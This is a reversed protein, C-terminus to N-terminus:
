IINNKDLDSRNTGSNGGKMSSTHSNTSERASDGFYTAVRISCSGSAGARLQLFQISWNPLGSPGTKNLSVATLPVAPTSSLSRKQCLSM